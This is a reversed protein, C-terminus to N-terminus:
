PNLMMFNALLRAGSRGSREPHFQVGWFNRHHIVAAMTEGYEVTAIVASASAPAYYGHVFYFWDNDALGHLLPDGRVARLTNWGMHPVPHGASAQMREIRGALLGLGTTDGETSHEFLLQMGLCIGLVPASLARIVPTLGLAELREMIAAANGVGPLLVRDAGAIVAADTTVVATVGLRELAYGLSALNAGGSDVVVIQGTGRATYTQTM